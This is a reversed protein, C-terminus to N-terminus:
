IYSGESKPSGFQVVVPITLENFNAVAQTLLGTRFQGRQFNSADKILSWGAYLPRTRLEDRLDAIGKLIEELKKSEGTSKPDTGPKVGNLILKFGVQVAASGVEKLVWLALPQEIM